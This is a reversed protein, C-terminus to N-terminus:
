ANNGVLKVVSGDQYSVIISTSRIDNKTTDHAVVAKFAMNVRPDIGEFNGTEM